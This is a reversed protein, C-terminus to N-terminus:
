RMPGWVQSALTPNRLALAGWAAVGLYVGFLVHSGLPAAHQYQVAVAGGLYGTLLIAGILATRPFAYLATAALLVFGLTRTQAPAFGLQGTIDISVKAGAIKMGADMLLFILVLGTLGLGTWRRWPAPARDQTM